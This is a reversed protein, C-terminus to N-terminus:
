LESSPDWLQNVQQHLRAALRKRDLGPFHAEGFVVEVRTGKLGMLRWFHAPFRHDKWYAVDESVVVAPDPSSWRLAVPAVRARCDIAPQLLAPLFPLITDGGTSTGELFVCVSLGAALRDAMQKATAGLGRDRKRSVLIQESSRVLPGVLPWDAADARSVFFCRTSAAIALVDAYGLHNPCLLTGAPPPSGRVVVQLSAIRGFAQAWKQSWYLAAEYRRVKDAAALRHILFAWYYATTVVCILAVRVAARSASARAPASSGTQPPHQTM